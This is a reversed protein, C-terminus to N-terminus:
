IIAQVRFYQITDAFASISSSPLRFGHVSKLSVSPLQSCATDWGCSLKLPLASASRPYM